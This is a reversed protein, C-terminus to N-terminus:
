ETPPTRRLNCEIRGPQGGSGRYSHFLHQHCRTCLDARRVRDPRLGARLLQDVNAAWLDVHERTAAGRHAGLRRPPPPLRFAAPFTEAVEAGVEFCCPGISPGVFARMAAPDDGTLAALEEVTRRGIEAVTGRWGAHAVGLGGPSVLFLPVCDAVRVVLTLGASTTVAADCAPSLGPGTVRTVTASHVQQLAAVPAPPDADAAGGTVRCGSLWAQVHSDAAGQWRLTWRGAVPALRLDAARLPDAPLSFTSM